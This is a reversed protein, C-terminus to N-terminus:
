FTFFFFKLSKVFHFKGGRFHSAVEVDDDDDVDGGRHEAKKKTEYGQTDENYEADSYSQMSIKPIKSKNM